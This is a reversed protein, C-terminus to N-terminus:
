RGRGRTAPAMDVVTYGFGRSGAIPNEIITREFNKKGHSGYYVYARGIGQACGTPAPPGFRPHGVAFDDSKDGNIDGLPFLRLFHGTGPSTCGPPPDLADISLMPEAQQGNRLAKRLAKGSFAWLGWLGDSVVVDPRRDGDIDGANIATWGFERRPSTGPAFLTHPTPAYATRPGGLYFLVVGGGRASTDNYPLSIAFDAYKDNNLELGGILARGFYDKNGGPGPGLQVPNADLGGPAGYYLYVYGSRGHTILVDEFGDDDVDGASAVQRGFESYRDGEEPATVVVPTYDFAAGDGLYIHVEAIEGFEARGGVILDPVSDGNVDGVSLRVGYYNRASPGGYDVRWGSHELYPATPSGYFLDIGGANGNTSFGTVVDTLGDGNMDGMNVTTTPWNHALNAMVSADLTEYAPNKARGRFIRIAAGARGRAVHGVLLDGQGDGDVDPARCDKCPGPPPALMLMAVLLVLVRTPTV